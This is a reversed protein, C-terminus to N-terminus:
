ACYLMLQYVMPPPPPALEPPLPLLLKLIEPVTPWGAVALMDPPPKAMLPPKQLLMLVTCVGPAGTKLTSFDPPCAETEQVAGAVPNM